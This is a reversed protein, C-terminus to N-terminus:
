ALSTLDISRGSVASLEAGLLVGLRDSTRTSVWGQVADHWAFHWAGSRPSSLWIQQLPASKNLVYQGGDPLDLTVVDGQAEVDILDGVATDIADQLALLTQDARRHYLSLEASM